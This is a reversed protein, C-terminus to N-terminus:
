SSDDEDSSTSSTTETTALVEAIAQAHHTPLDASIEGASPDFRIATLSQGRGRGHDYPKGVPTTQGQFGGPRDNKLAQGEGTGLRLNSLAKSIADVDVDPPLLVLDYDVGMYIFDLNEFWVHSALAFCIRPNAM